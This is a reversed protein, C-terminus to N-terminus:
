AHFVDLHDIERGLVVFNFRGYVLGDLFDDVLGCEDIAGCHAMKRL